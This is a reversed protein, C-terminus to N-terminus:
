LRVLGEALVRNLATLDVPKALHRDFGSQRAQEIDHESTYGTLAILWADKLQTDARISKAVEYGSKGPMGSIASFLRRNYSGAGPSAQLETMPLTLRMGWSVSCLVSFIRM